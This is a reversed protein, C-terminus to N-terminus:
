NGLLYISHIRSNKSERAQTHKGNSNSNSKGNGYGYGNDNHYKLKTNPHAHFATYQKCAAM